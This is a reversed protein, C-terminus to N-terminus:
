TRSYPSLIHPQHWKTYHYIEQKLGTLPIPAPVQTTKSDASIINTCEMDIKRQLESQYKYEDKNIKQFTKM